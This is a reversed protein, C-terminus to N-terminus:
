VDDPTPFCSTLRGIAYPRKAPSYYTGGSTVSWTYGELDGTTADAYLRMFATGPGATFTGTTCGDPWRSDEYFSSCGHVSSTADAIPLAYQLTGSYVPNMATIPEAPGTAIVTHGPYKRVGNEWVEDIVMIDGAAIGAINTVQTFHNGALIHNYYLNSNPSTSGWLQAIDGSSYGSQTKMALTFFSAGNGSPTQSAILALAADAVASCAEAPASGLSVLSAAASVM